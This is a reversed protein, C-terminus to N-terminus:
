FEALDIGDAPIFAHVRTGKAGGDISFLGEHQRIRAEMGAIGLGDRLGISRPDAAGDDEILLKVGSANRFVEISILQARGHRHANSIAEQVVRFLSRQVALPLADVEGEMALDIKAGTRRTFGEAYRRLSTTLGDVALTPPHLLYSLSQIEKQAEALERRMDELTEETAVGRRVASLALQLAVLHQSTSDHLEIAIRRREEEQVELLREAVRSQEKTAEAVATVDDHTLLVWSRGDEEFRTGRLQFIRDACRYQHTFRRRKRGILAILSRRVTQAEQDGELEARECVELYNEGVYADARAGRAAGFQRWATNVQRIRGDLDLIAVHTEISDLVSRVEGRTLPGSDSDSSRGDTVPAFSQPQPTVDSM